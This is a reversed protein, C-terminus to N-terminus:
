PKQDRRWRSQRLLGRVLQAERHTLAARAFLSRVVSIAADTRVSDEYGSAIMEARLHELARTVEEQSAPYDKSKPHAGSRLARETVGDDVAPASQGLQRRAEAVAALAIGVAQALNLSPFAASTPLRWRWACMNAEENTFGSEERGFVLAIREDPKRGTLLKTPIADICELVRHHGQVGTLAITLEFPALAERLTPAVTAARLIESAGAAFARALGDMPEFKPAVLVMRRAGFNKMVRAAAGANGPEATEVMVVAVHRLPM